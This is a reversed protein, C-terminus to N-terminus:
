PRYHHILSALSVFRLSCLTSFYNSDSSYYSHLRLYAGISVSDSDEFASLYRCWDCPGFASAQLKTCYSKLLSYYLYSQGTLCAVLTLLGAGASRVACAACKTSCTWGQLWWHWGEFPCDLGDRVQGPEKCHAHGQGWIRCSGTRCMRTSACSSLHQLPVRHLSLHSVEALTPVLKVWQRYAGSHM